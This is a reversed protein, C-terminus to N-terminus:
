KQVTPAGESVWTAFVESVKWSRGAYLLPRAKVYDLFETLDERKCNMMVQFVSKGEFMGKKIQIDMTPNNETFYNGTFRIDRVMTDLVREEMNGSWDTFVMYPDYFAEDHVDKLTIFHAAVANIQGEYVQERPMFTYLLDGERIAVGSKNNSITFYYYDEKILQCRGYGKIATDAYTGQYVGRVIGLQKESFSMGGPLRVQVIRTSDDLDVFYGTLPFARFQKNDELQSFSTLTVFFSLILLLIKM